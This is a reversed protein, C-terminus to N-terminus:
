DGDGSGATCCDDKDLYAEGGVLCSETDGLLDKDGSISM